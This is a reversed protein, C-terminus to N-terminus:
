MVLAVVSLLAMSLAAAGYSSASFAGSRCEGTSVNEELLTNDATRRLDQVTCVTSVLDGGTTDVNFLVCESLTDVVDDATCVPAFCAVMNNWRITFYLTTGDDVKFTNSCEMDYTHLDGSLSQCVNFFNDYMPHDAADTECYNSSGCDVNVTFSAGQAEVSEALAKSDTICQSEEETDQLFRLRKNADENDEHVPLSPLHVGFQYAQGLKFLLSSSLLVSFISPFIM